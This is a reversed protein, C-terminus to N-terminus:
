LKRLVFEGEGNTSQSERLVKLEQHRTRIGASAFSVRHAPPYGLSHPSGDLSGPPSSPSWRRTPGPTPVECNYIIILLLTTQMLYLATAQLVSQALTCRGVYSLYRAKWEEIREGVRDLLPQFIGLHARGHISPIGLYKGLDTTIPIQAILAIREALADDVGRSFYLSSKQLSVQQSSINCFENLCEVVTSMSPNQPHCCKGITASFFFIGLLFGDFVWQLM